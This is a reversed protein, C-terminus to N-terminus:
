SNNLKSIKWKTNKSQSQSHTVSVRSLSVAFLRPSSWLAGYSSMKALNQGVVRTGDGVGERHQQDQQNWSQISCVM